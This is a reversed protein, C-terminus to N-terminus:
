FVIAEVGTNGAIVIIFVRVAREAESEMTCTKSDPEVGYAEAEPEV